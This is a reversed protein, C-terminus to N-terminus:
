SAVAMDTEQETACEPETAPEAAVATRHYPSWLFRSWWSEALEVWTRLQGIDDTFRHMNVLLWSSIAHSDRCGDCGGGTCCFSVNQLDATFTNFGPMSPNGNALRATHAPHDHSISACNHYGFDDWHSRGTVLTRIFYPHSIVTEPYLARVRLMEDLLDQRGTAAIPEDASFDTYYNFAVVNGNRHIARVTTEIHAISSESVAYLFSARPDGEYNRLSTEFLGEFRKGSPKIARLEDDLPGGGWVSVGIAVNEFGEVPLKKLGNTSIAVHRMNRAFVSLRRPVLTPEGGIVLAMNIKRESAERRVFAELEQLDGSERTSSDLGGEFFWCGKCRINCANTLHYESSRIGTQFAVARRFRGALEPDTELLPAIRRLADKRSHRAPDVPRAAVPQRHWRIPAVTENLLM